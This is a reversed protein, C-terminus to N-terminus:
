FANIVVARLTAALAIMMAKETKVTILHSPYQDPRPPHPGPSPLPRNRDDEGACDKAKRERDDGTGVQQALLALLVRAPEILLPSQPHLVLLAPAEHIRLKAEDTVHEAARRSPRRFLAVADRLAGNQGRVQREILDFRPERLDGLDLHLADEDLALRSQATSGPGATSITSSTTTANRSDSARRSPALTASLASLPRSALLSLSARTSGTRRPRSASCPRRPWLARRSAVVAGSM